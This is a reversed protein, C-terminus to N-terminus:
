KVAVTLFNQSFIGDKEASGTEVTIYFRLLMRVFGWLIRRIVSKFGHVVPKDEYSRVSSFGSSLLLQSISTRTYIHEHTFDGFLIRSVFPSEGNPCHILWKGGDRLVRHVEDVFPLLEQRTFHEIVDFAVVMDHSNDPLSRMTEMIDGQSIGPIDLHEAIAVQEASYDVGTINSYGAQRAFHILAGAGCGLDIITVDRNAPFYTKIISKLYPERPKFGALAKIDLSGNYSSVYSKYVRNRYHLDMM